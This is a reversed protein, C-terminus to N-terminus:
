PLPIAGELIPKKEAVKTWSSKLVKVRRKSKSARCTKKKKAAAATTTSKKKNAKKKLAKMRKMSKKKRLAALKLMKEKKIERMRQQEQKKVLKLRKTMTKISVRSKGKLPLGNKFYLKVAKEPHKGCGADKATRWLAGVIKSRQPPAGKIVPFVARSFTTYVNPKSALLVRALRMM